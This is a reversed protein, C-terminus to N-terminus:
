KEKQDGPKTKQGKKKKIFKPKNSIINNCIAEKKVKRWKKVSGLAERNPAKTKLGRKQDRNVKIEFIYEPVEFGAQKIVTAIPRLVKIDGYSYFTIARGKRGARGTRGVRHIYSAISTPLDFNIVLTVEPIDIGRGMMDTCILVFVELSKLQNLIKTRAEVTLEGSMLRMPIDPLRRKLEVFLEGAREKSQVFILAPPDFGKRMIEEVLMIKGNEDGSFKLEQVVDTNSSNRAGICVIAVDHLNDRCWREVESSFTASFFLRKAHASDTMRFIKGLQTRFNRDGETTDFLRDAEDVVLWRVTALDDRKLLNHKACNIFKSPTCVIFNGTDPKAGSTVLFSKLPLGKILQTINLHIQEALVATPAVFIAFLENEELDADLAQKVIPLTFAITKGSGTPASVLLDRKEFLLPISQMQVPTPIKIDFLALNDRLKKNLDLEDFEILPDPIDDGWTFIRNAKRLKDAKGEKNVVMKKVEEPKSKTQNFLEQANLNNDQKKKKTKVVPEDVDDVLVRKILANETKPGTKKSKVTGFSLSQYIDYFGNGM